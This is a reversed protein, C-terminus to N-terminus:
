EAKINSYILFVFKSAGAFGLAGCFLGLGVCFNLSTGFYYVTQLFGSMQTSNYFYHITYVFVYVSTAGCCLFSQWQWRYDEANLLVYTCTISVCVIVLCLLLLIALMFGYVYYIKNHSWVASLIFYMEIFLCGFPVLGATVIMAPTFLWHKTPIPRKLHHVRCPFARDAAARRGLLTGATHLPVCLVVFLVLIILITKFPVTMTARYVIATTNIFMWTVTVLAPMFLCQYVMTRKWHQGGFMRFVRGGEYGGVIVTCLYSIVFSTATAGRQAYYSNAIAFILVVFVCLALHCGTAYVVTFIALHEPRRFVDGGVQKWGSEDGGGDMSELEEADTASYRTFDRKLTKMLIIAVVACLFLCLMFSNVISFWHVKHEFFKPDLYRMTRDKFPKSTTYWIASYTFNLPAGEYVPWANSPEMDVEIVQDGNRFLTFHRHTFIRPLPKGKLHKPVPPAGQADHASTNSTRVLKAFRSVDVGFRSHEGVFAWIPLDDLYLQYWYNDHVMGSLARAKEATLVMSCVRAGAVEKGFQIKLRPSSFFEHGELAEGISLEGQQVEIDDGDLECLGLTHYNYTEQPNNYPGVKDTWVVVDESTKYRHTDKGAVAARPLTVLLAVTALICDQLALQRRAPSHGAHKPKAVFRLSSCSVM